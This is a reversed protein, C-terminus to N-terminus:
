PRRRSRPTSAAAPDLRRGLDDLYSRRRVVREIRRYPHLPDLDGDCLAPPWSLLERVDYALSYVRLRDLQRPHAFLAPYDEALWVPVDVYDEALTRAEFAAGVHLQPYACCRLVIDLDLDRPGPRSWEVDLLATVAGDGWLVNEFTVDGHVLTSATFPLITPTLELVLEVAEQVFLPDVHELRAARALADLLPATPDPAGVDLLQPAREVPALGTPTPTAHLAALREAVGRVARRRDPGTLDPWCHALPRGPRRESILWDEGPRGGRAVIVPYGVTAPLAAAVIAERALRDDHRRNVRVVHTASMWVENTVSTARELAVTPDLGAARLATRARLEALTSGPHANTM